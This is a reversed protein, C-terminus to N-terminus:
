DFQRQPLNGTGFPGWCRSIRKHTKECCVVRCATGRVTGRRVKYYLAIEAEEEEDRSVLSPEGRCAEEVAHIERGWDVRFVHRQRKNRQVTFKIRKRNLGRERREATEALVPNVTAAASAAAAGHIASGARTRSGGGGTDVIKTAAQLKKQM